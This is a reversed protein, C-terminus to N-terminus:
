TSGWGRPRAGRSVPRGPSPPAGARGPGAVDFIFIGGAELASFIRRFLRRLAPLCNKADFSYNLCEGVATVAACVFQLFPLGGVIETPQVAVDEANAALIRETAAILADAAAHLAADKVARPTTALVGAAVRARRAAEEVHQKVGEM